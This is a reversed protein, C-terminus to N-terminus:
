DYASPRKNTDSHAVHLICGMTLPCTHVHIQEGYCLTGDWTVHVITEVEFTIQTQLPFLSVLSVGDGAQGAGEGIPVCRCM